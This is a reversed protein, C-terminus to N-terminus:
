NLFIFVLSHRPLMWRCLSSSTSASSWSPSRRCPSLGVQIGDVNGFESSSSTLTVQTIAKCSESCYFVDSQFGAECEEWIVVRLRCSLGDASHISAFEDISFLDYDFLWTCTCKLLCKRHIHFLDDYIWWKLALILFSTWRVVFHHCTSWTCDSPDSTLYIWM